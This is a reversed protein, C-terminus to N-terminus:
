LQHFRPNKKKCIPNSTNKCASILKLWVKAPSGVPERGLWSSRESGMSSCHLRYPMPTQSNKVIRGLCERETMQKQWEPMSIIAKLREFCSQCGQVGDMVLGSELPHVEEMDTGRVAQRDAAKMVELIGNHLGTSETQWSCNGEIYANMVQSLPLCIKKEMTRAIFSIARSLLLQDFQYRWSSM